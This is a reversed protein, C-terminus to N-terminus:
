WLEEELYTKMSQYNIMHSGESVFSVQLYHRLNEFNTMYYIMRWELIM